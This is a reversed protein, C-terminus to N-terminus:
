RAEELMVLRWQSMVLWWGRLMLGASSIRACLMAAPPKGLRRRRRVGLSGSPRNWCSQRGTALIARGPSRSRWRHVDMESKSFAGEKNDDDADLDTEAAEGGFNRTLDEM